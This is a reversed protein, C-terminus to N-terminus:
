EMYGTADGKAAAAAELGWALGDTSSRREARAGALGIHRASGDAFRYSTATAAIRDFGLGTSAGWAAASNSGTDADTFYGFEGRWALALGVQQSAIQGSPFRVSSWSLGAQLTPGLDKWLTVAPRLMLGGGVPAAAGGGGGAFLGAALSVSDALQWRHQLEVGGVFLGGRRGSAAGYVAPGVAWDSGIDFLLTGGALGMHEGQPLRVTEFGFSTAIPLSAMGASGSQAQGICPWQLMAVLAIM